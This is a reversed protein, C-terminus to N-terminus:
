CWVVGPPVTERESSLLSHRAYVLSAAAGAVLSGGFPAALVGLTVSHQGFLTATSITGIIAAVMYIIVM